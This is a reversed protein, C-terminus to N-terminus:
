PIERRASRDKIKKALSSVDATTAEHKMFEDLDRRARGALPDHLSTYCENRMELFERRWLVHPEFAHIAALLKQGPRGGDLYMAIALQSGLRETENNFVCFPARVAEFLFGAVTKSRDSNATAEARKLTRKTLERNPWPLDHLNQLCERFLNAAEEPRHQRWLLEGRVADAEWPFIQALNDIFSPANSDGETALCEAVMALQSLTKPDDSQARWERLAGTLDGGMYAAFAAARHRQDSTFNPDNQEAWSLSEFMSIRAEDVRGWDIDGEEIQPRDGAAAHSSTRLNVLQFGGTVNVTRAFAFEIVTRDDTNLPVSGLHQLVDTVSNNGVYHGLFEELSASRWAALLASKFPEEALRARLAPVDYKIPSRSAMLLLDGGATQWSEINPFVSGLTSYFIQMTREDIEYAQVWQFFMGGVRLCRDVSQYYERTFLGAVGARYPNSPESVIIDYKERTTLLVERADGITLHLKPNQLADRNVPACRQAVTVIAPELEVVDVREMAPVAALWGATSGTGLGVVLAKTANPHLAAGIMGSMIQTGADGTANGDTRGNVIFALGRAAALAVSSEVGDAQWIMRRRIAQVVERMENPSGQFVALRGVGIESHRWFATPGSAALMAVAAIAASSPFLANKWNSANRRVALMAAIAGLVALLASAIKWVGPASLMPILGFGGALSGALAGATNWAYAAGTQFGVLKTGKGLLAILAPFQLGAIFAAPFIVILCLTAWALVHGQFGITGLPRLLLAAMAIRDGLAYPLSIFFAEAACTMAFFQLSASHKEGFFVGYAVGGFGIGLLAVALILGFSFTSGGLLPGLMRYWVLEMLFFAFGVVAASALVFRPNIAAAVTKELPAPTKEVAAKVNSSRRSLRFASFAIAVNVLAALWLTMRNGFNEFLYFTGALAGGVAGLTNAGYIFGISRRESDDRAVVARAAAPLTGGMLFTPTALIFAAFLLRVLTGVFIGLAETGGMAIYLHRVAWILLPSAAASAAILFELKAYFGLPQAKSESRRGLVIGGIGLGAMFVGIAAATAATSAGFILRFERLWTTQYILACFGSGFLLLAVLRTRGSM